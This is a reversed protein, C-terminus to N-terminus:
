ATSIALVATGARGPGRRPADADPVRWGGIPQGFWHEATRRGHDLYPTAFDRRRARKGSATVWMLWRTQSKGDRGLEIQVNNTFAAATMTDGTM